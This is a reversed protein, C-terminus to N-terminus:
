WHHSQRPRDCISPFSIPQIRAHMGEWVKGNKGRKNFCDTRTVSHKGNKLVLRGSWGIRLHFADTTGFQSSAGTERFDRFSIAM